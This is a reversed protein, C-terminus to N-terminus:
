ADTSEHTYGHTHLVSETGTSGTVGTSPPDITISTSPPDISLTVAPLEAQILTHSNAGGTVGIAATAGIAVRDAMNPLILSTGSKWASPAVTWLNPYKTDANTVTQGNLFLWGIPEVTGFYLGGSGAPTIIEMLSERTISHRWVTDIPWAQAAGGGFATEQARTVTVSTSFATHATVVVIEPPHLSGLPDITLRLTNPAVVTPLNAFNASQFTTGSLGPAASLTGSQLNDFIDM